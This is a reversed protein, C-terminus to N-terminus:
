SAKKRRAEEADRKRRMEINHYYSKLKPNSVILYGNRTLVKLKGHKTRGMVKPYVQLHQYYRPRGHVIVSRESKYMRGGYGAITPKPISKPTKGLFSMPNKLREALVKFPNFVNRDAM